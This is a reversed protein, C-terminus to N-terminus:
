SIVDPPEEVFWLRPSGVIRGSLNASHFVIGTIPDRGVKDIPDRSVVLFIDYGEYVVVSAVSSVFFIKPFSM